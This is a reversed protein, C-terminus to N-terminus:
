TRAMALKAFPSWSGTLRPCGALRTWIPTRLISRWLLHGSQWSSAKAEATIAEQEAQRATAEAKKAAQESAKANAEAIRSAEASSLARQREETAKRAERTVSETLMELTQNKRYLAVGGISTAVMATALTATTAMWRAPNRRRSLAVREALSYQHGAVPEDSLWTELQTALQEANGFRNESKVHMAQRCVSLLPGPISFSEPIARVEGRIM